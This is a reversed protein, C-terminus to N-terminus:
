AALQRTASIYKPDSQLRPRLVVYADPTTIRRGKSDLREVDSVVDHVAISYEPLSDAAEIDKIYKKFSRAAVSSGVKAALHDMKMEIPGDDCHCRAIEYLRREITGLRFYDHHYSYIRGDRQIARTLFNCLRVQVVCLVETGDPLMRSNVTAESLWSFWGRDRQAGTEINTKVQTGQLRELADLFRKYDRSSPRNVGTVRFFDHATFTFDASVAIGKGIQEAMLSAVYLIIEKDYMTAVGTASPRISITIEDLKYETPELAPKKTLSFFPFDMISQEGRVKGYLPSDPQFLNGQKSVTLAKNSM